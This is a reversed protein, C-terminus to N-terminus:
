RTETSDTRQTVTALYEAAAWCSGSWRFCPVSIWGEAESPSQAAATANFAPRAVHAFQLVHDLAGRDQRLVAPSRIVAPAGSLM